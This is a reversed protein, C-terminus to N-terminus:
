DVAFRVAPACLLRAGGLTLTRDGFPDSVQIQGPGPARTKLAYCVFDGPSLTAKPALTTLVGNGEVKATASCFLQAVVLVDADLLGFENQLQVKLFESPKSDALVSYCTLHDELPSPNGGAFASRAVVSMSVVAIMTTILFILSKAASM